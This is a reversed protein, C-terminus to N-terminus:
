PMKRKRITAWQSENPPSFNLFYFKAGNNQNTKKGGMEELYKDVTRPNSFGIRRKSM